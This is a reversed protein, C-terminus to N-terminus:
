LWMFFSPNDEYKGIDDNIAGILLVIWDVLAVIGCGGLTLCYGIKTGTSTGLYWRHIGLGGLVWALVFAVWPNKDANVFQPGAYAQSETEMTAPIVSLLSGQEFVTEVANDDIYYSASESASAFCSISLFLSFIAAFMTKKM